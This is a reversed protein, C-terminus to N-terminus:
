HISPTPSLHAKSGAELAVAHHPLCSTAELIVFVNRPLVHLLRSLQITHPLSGGELQQEAASACWWISGTEHITTRSLFSTQPSRGKHALLTQVLLFRQGPM